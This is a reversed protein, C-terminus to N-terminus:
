PEQGPPPRRHQGALGGRSLEVQNAATAIGEGAEDVVQLLWGGEETLQTWWLSWAQVVLHDRISRPDHVVTADCHTIPGDTPTVSLADAATGVDSLVV